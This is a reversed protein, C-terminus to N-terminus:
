AFELHLVSKEFDKKKLKFHAPKTLIKFYAKDGSVAKIEISNELDRVEIDDLNKVKPLEVEVTVNVPTTTINAKPEEITKPEKTQKFGWFNKKLTQEQPKIGMNELQENIDEKVEKNDADGFTKVFVKPKDNNSRSIRITFGSGTKPKTKFLPTLDRVEFDKDFNKDMEKMQKRMRSFIQNFFDDSMINFGIQNKFTMGCEPCYNWGKEVEARCRPCKNESM